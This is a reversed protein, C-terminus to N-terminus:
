SGRYEDVLDDLEDLATRVAALPTNMEHAMGATLRGLAAMKESILLREQNKALDDERRIRMLASSLQQRVEDLVAADRLGIDFVVFGLRDHKFYLPTLVLTRQREDDLIGEPALREAPFPEGATELRVGRGE